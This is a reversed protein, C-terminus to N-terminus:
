NSQSVIALRRYVHHYVSRDVGTSLKRTHHSYMSVDFAICLLPICTHVPGQYALRPYISHAAEYDRSWAERSLQVPVHDSFSLWLITTRVTVPIKPMVLCCRPTQCIFCPTQSTLQLHTLRGGSYALNMVCWLRKVDRKEDSYSTQEEM